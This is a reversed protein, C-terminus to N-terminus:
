MMKDILDDVVGDILRKRAVAIIDLNDNMLVVADGDGVVPATDGDIHVLAAHRGDLDHQGHKMRAALEAAVAVLYRAAEVTDADGDDICEGGGHIHLHAAIPRNM